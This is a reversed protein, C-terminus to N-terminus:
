DYDCVKVNIKPYSLVLCLLLELCISVQYERLFSFDTDAQLPLSSSQVTVYPNLEVVKHLSAEARPLHEGNVCVCVCVRGCRNREMAVDSESLFFQSSLDAM